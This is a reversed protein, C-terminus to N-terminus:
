QKKLKQKHMKRFLRTITQRKDINAIESISMCGAYDKNYDDALLPEKLHYDRVLYLFDVNNVPLISKCCSSQLFKCVAKPDLTRSLYPNRSYLSSVFFHAIDSIHDLSEIIACHEIYAQRIKNTPWDHLFIKM